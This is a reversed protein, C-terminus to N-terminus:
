KEADKITVKIGFDNEPFELTLQNLERSQGYIILKAPTLRVEGIDQSNIGYFYVDEASYDAPLLYDFCVMQKEGIQNRNKDFMEAVFCCTSITQYYKSKMEFSIKAFGFLNSTDTIYLMLSASSDDYILNDTADYDEDQYSDSSTTEKPFSSVLWRGNENQLSITGARGNQLYTCTAKKGDIDCKMNEIVPLIDVTTDEGSMSAFSELTEITKVAEGTALEKANKFEDKAIHILFKEAIYEPKKSQIHCSSIIYVAIITIAVFFYKKM